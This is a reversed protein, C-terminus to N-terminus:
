NQNIYHYENKNLINGEADKICVLRNQADYEYYTSYGRADTIVEIGVLPKHIITKIFANPLSARLNQFAAEWQQHSTFINNSLNQLNLIISPNIDQYRVNEIIAIPLTKNYGWILSKYTLDNYSYELINHRDDYLEIKEITKQNFENKIIQDVKKLRVVENTNEFWYTKENLINYNEKIQERFKLNLINKNFHNSQQHNLDFNGASYGTGTYTNSFDNQTMNYTYRFNQEVEQGLSNFQTIRIPNNYNDYQYSIQNTIDGSPFYEKTTSSVLRSIKDYIPYFTLFHVPDVTHQIDNPQPMVTIIRRGGNLVRMGHLQLPTGKNVYSNTIEKIVNDNEDYNKQMMLMGNKLANRSTYYMPSFQYSVTQPSLVLNPTNTFFSEIKINNQLYNTSNELTKFIKKTVKDYGIYNGETDTTGNLFTNNSYCLVSGIYIGPKNAAYPAASVFAQLGVTKFHLAKSICVGGTYEYKIRSTLHTADSFNSLYKIRLGYGTSIIGDNLNTLVMASDFQHSEYDFETYGGTPYIIKNLTCAKTFNSNSFFNNQINETFEPYGFHNLNPYLSTNSRGNYYGWLDVSFSDKSPLEVNFYDFQYLNEGEKGFSVLKLRRNRRSHITTSSPQYSNTTYISQDPSSSDTIPDLNQGGGSNADGPNEDNPSVPGFYEYNFNFKNVLLNQTNKIEIRDLKKMNLFDIRDSYVFNLSESKTVISKILRYNGKVNITNLVKRDVEGAYSHIWFNSLDGDGVSSGPVHSNFYASTCLSYYGTEGISKSLIQGLARYYEISYKPIEEVDELNKYQGGLFESM